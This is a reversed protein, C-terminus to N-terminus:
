WECFVSTGIGFSSVKSDFEDIVALAEEGAAM